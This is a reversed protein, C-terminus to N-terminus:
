AHEDRSSKSSRSRLGIVRRVSEAIRARAGRLVFGLGLIVALLAQYVMSGTGPDIYASAQRPTLIVAAISVFLVWPARSRRSTSRFMDSVTRWAWEAHLTLIAPVELSATM